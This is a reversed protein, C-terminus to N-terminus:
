RYPRAQTEFLDILLRQYREYLENATGPRNEVPRAESACLTLMDSAAFGAVAIAAVWLPLSARNAPTPTM